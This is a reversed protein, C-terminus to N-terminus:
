NRRLQQALSRALKVRETPELTRLLPAALTELAALNNSMEACVMRQHATGRLSMMQVAAIVGFRILNEVLRSLTAFDDMAIITADHARSRM